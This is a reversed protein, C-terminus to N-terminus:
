LIRALTDDPKRQRICMNFSIKPRLMIEAVHWSLVPHDPGPVNSHLILGMM